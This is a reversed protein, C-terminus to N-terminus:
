FLFSQKEDQKMNQGSLLVLSMLLLFLEPWNEYFFLKCFPAYGEMELVPTRRNIEKEFDAPTIGPIAPRHESDDFHSLVFEPLTFKM